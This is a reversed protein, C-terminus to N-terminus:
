TLQFYFLFFVSITMLILTLFGLLNSLLSNVNKKMIKKNNAIILILFILPPASIGYLIATYILAKIPSIGIFSIALGSFLSITIMLYFIKGQHFKKNLGEKFEFTSCILYALCSSFVPIALIGTGIIGIAFIIYCMKGALPELAKAAQEVTDIHTIGNKFLISATSLIIFYMVLNSVFMGMGIDKFQKKLTNSTAKINSSKKEEVAMTAQWFFLYPSITTGLIAVLMNVYQKNLTISPLFTNKAVDLWHVQAYFPIILYLLLVLCFYKLINVIKSYPLFVIMINLMVTFLISFIHSPINPVLLNAVAGMGSIDAGINLIVAPITIILTIYVLIPHYNEKINTILGKSTVLGIRGCMEQIAFMLPFTIIATWLTTLGLQAGAQSYTAIGSPDDDSAGTILGPGLNKFFSKIRSFFNNETKKV